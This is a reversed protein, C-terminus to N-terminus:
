ITLGILFQHTNFIESDFQYLYRFDVNLLNSIRYKVGFGIGISFSSVPLTDKQKYEKPLEEFSNYEGNRKEASKTTLPDIWKYGAEIQTYPYFSDYNLQYQVGLSFPIIQYQTKLVKYSVAYYKKINDINSFDNTKVNYSNPNYTKTYGISAKLNFKSSLNTRGEFLFSSGIDSFASFNVGGYLGFESTSFISPNNQHQAFISNLSFLFLILFYKM